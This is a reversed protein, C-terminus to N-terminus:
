KEEKEKSETETEKPLTMLNIIEQTCEGTFDPPFNKSNEVVKFLYGLRKFANELDMESMRQYMQRNQESLQHCIGELQEYSLKENKEEM